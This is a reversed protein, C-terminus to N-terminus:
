PAFQFLLDARRTAIPSQGWCGGELRGGGEGTRIIGLQLWKVGAYPGSAPDTLICSNGPVDAWLM